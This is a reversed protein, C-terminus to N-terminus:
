NNGRVFSILEQMRTVYTHDRYAREQGKRAIENREKSHTLYYDVMERLEDM